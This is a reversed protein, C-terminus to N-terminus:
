QNNPLVVKFTAERNLESKLEIQGNLKKLAERTISLGLGTGPSSSHIKFFRDFIKEHFESIIGIGNDKVIIIANNSNVQVKVEVRHQYESKKRFITANSILNLLIIKLRNEDTHFFVPQNVNVNFEIHEAGPVMIKLFEIIEDVIVRFEVAHIEEKLQTNKSYAVMNDVISNIRLFTQKVEEVAVAGQNALDLSELIETMNKLSAVSNGLNRSINVILDNLKNNVRKLDISRESLLQETHYVHLANDIAIRLDNEDWPKSIYRFVNGKNIADIIAPLDSYATTLMRIAKPYEAVMWELFEVGTIDPMRQDSIVVQIDNEALIKKAEDVNIATFINYNRRYGGKFSVLNYEEDDV